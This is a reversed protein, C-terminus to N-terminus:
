QGQLAHAAFLCTPESMQAPAAQRFTQGRQRNDAKHDHIGARGYAESIKPSIRRDWINRVLRNDDLATLPYQIRRIDPM